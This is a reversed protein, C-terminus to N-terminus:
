ESQERGTMTGSLESIALLEVSPTGVEIVDGPRLLASKEIRHGNLCTGYSSHDSLKVGSEVRSVSCHKRSIGAGQLRVGFEDAALEAGIQFSVNEIRYAQAAHLIHTVVPADSVSSDGSERRSVVIETRDWQLANKLRVAGGTDFQDAREYAGIAAAHEELVFPTVQPLRGLSEVIGPFRALMENLQIAVTKNAPLQSRIQQLVPEFARGVADILLDRSVEVTFQNGGLAIDVQLIPSKQLGILWENLNNHLRQETAADHLADLRTVDLFVSAIAAVCVRRLREIGFGAISDRNGLQVRSQQEIQTITTTHLSADLHLLQDCVYKRRTAAIVADVMGAIPISKEEAIGLLLGLHEHSWYPPAVVLVSANPPLKARLSDLHAFVIDATSRFPGFAPVIPETSLNQWYDNRTDRPRLRSERFAADGFLLGDGSLAAFAPEILAAGEAGASVIGADNLDLAVISM